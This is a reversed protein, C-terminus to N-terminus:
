KYIRAPPKYYIPFTAQCSNITLPWNFRLILAFNASSLDEDVGYDYDSSSHESVRVHLQVIYGMGLTIVTGVAEDKYDQFTYSEKFAGLGAYFQWEQYNNTSLM